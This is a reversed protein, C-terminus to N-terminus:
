ISYKLSIRGFQVNVRIGCMFFASRGGRSNVSIGCLEMINVSGVKYCM